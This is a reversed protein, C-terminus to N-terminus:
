IIIYLIANILNWLPEFKSTEIFFLGPDINNKNVKYVRLHLHVTLTPCFFSLRPCNLGEAVM